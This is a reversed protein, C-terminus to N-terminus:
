REEETQTQQTVSNKKKSINLFPYMITLILEENLEQEEMKGNQNFSTLWMQPVRSKKGGSLPYGLLEGTEYMQQIKEAIAKEEQKSLDRNIKRRVKYFIHTYVNKYAEHTQMHCEVLTKHEEEGAHFLFHIAEYGRKENKHKRSSINFKEKERLAARIEDMEKQTTTLLTIGFIDNLDKKLKWNEVVSAPSKIRSSILVGRGIKGEELLKELTQALYQKVSIFDNVKGEVLSNYLEYAQLLREKGQGAETNAQIKPQGLKSTQPGETM